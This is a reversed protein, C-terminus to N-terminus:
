SFLNHRGNLHKYTLLSSSLKKMLFNMYFSLKNMNYAAKSLLTQLIVFHEFFNNKTVFLLM